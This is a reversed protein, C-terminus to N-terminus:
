FLSKSSDVPAQCASHAQYYQDTIELFSKMAVSLHIPDYYAVSVIWEHDVNSELYYCDLDDFSGSFSLYHEPILTYGIDNAVMRKITEQNRSTMVINPTIHAKKFISENIYRIRQGPQGIIFPASNMRTIDIYPFRELTKKHYAYQKLSSNKSALLIMRSKLLPHFSFSDFKYPLPIVSIDIAGEMLMQELESSSSEVISLEVQPYRSTYAPIIESAILTGLLYPVGLILKGKKAQNLESFQNELDRLIKNIKIGADVFAEGEATLKLRNKVRTFLVVGTEQEIKKLAQSLSPQAIYLKQAAKTITGEQAITVIYNIERLNINM